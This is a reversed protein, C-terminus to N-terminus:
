FFGNFGSPGYQPDGELEKLKEKIMYFIQMNRVFSNYWTDQYYKKLINELTKVKFSALNLNGNEMNFFFQLMDLEEPDAPSIEKLGEILKQTNIHLM